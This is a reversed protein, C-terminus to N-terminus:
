QTNRGLANTDKAATTETALEPGAAGRTRATGDTLPRTPRTRKRRKPPQRRASDTGGEPTREPRARRKARAEGSTGRAADSRGKRRSSRLTATGIGHGPRPSWRSRSRGRARRDGAARTSRRACRGAAEPRRTRTRARGRPRAPVSTWNHGPMSTPTRSERPGRPHHNLPRDRQRATHGRREPRTAGRPARRFSASM